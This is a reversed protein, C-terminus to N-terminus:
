THSVVKRGAPTPPCRPQAKPCQEPGRARPFATPPLMPRVCVGLGGFRIALFWVPALLQLVVYFARGGCAKPRWEVKLPAAADTTGKAMSQAVSHAKHKHHGDPVKGAAKRAGLPDRADM